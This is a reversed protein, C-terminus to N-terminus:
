AAERHENFPVCLLPWSKQWQDIVCTNEDTRMGRVYALDFVVGLYAVGPSPRTFAGLDEDNGCWTTDVIKGDRDINWAHHVPMFKSFAYGEVYSLNGRSALAAKYSNDFCAKPIRPRYRNKGRVTPQDPSFETFATGERLVFDEMGAYHWGPAVM